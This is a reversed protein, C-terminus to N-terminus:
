SSPEKLLQEVVQLRQLMLALGSFSKLGVPQKAWQQKKKYYLSSAHFHMM